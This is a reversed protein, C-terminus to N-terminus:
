ECDRLEIAKRNDVYAVIGRTFLSVAMQSMWGRLEDRFNWLEPDPFGMALGLENVSDFSFSEINGVEIRCGALKLAAVFELEQTASTSSILRGFREAAEARAAQLRESTAIRERYAALQLETMLPTCGVVLRVNVNDNNLICHFYVGDDIVVVSSGAEVSVISFNMGSFLPYLEDASSDSIPFLLCSLVAAGIRM